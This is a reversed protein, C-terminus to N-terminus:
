PKMPTYSMSGIVNNLDLQLWTGTNGTDHTDDDSVVRLQSPLSLSPLRADSYADDGQKKALASIPQSPLSDRSYDQRGGALINDRCLIIRREERVKGRIYDSIQMPTWRRNDHFNSFSLLPNTHLVPSVPVEKVLRVVTVQGRLDHKDIRALFDGPKALGFLPGTEQISEVICWMSFPEGMANDKDPAFVTLGLKGSPAKIEIVEYKDSDQLSLPLVSAAADPQEKSSSSRLWDLISSSGCTAGKTALGATSDETAESLEDGEAIMDGCNTVFPARSSVINQMVQTDDDPSVTSTECDGEQITTLADCDKDDDGLSRNRMAFLNGGKPRAKKTRFNRLSQSKGAAASTSIADSSGSSLDSERAARTKPKSAFGKPMSIPFSSHSSSRGMPFRVRDSISSSASAVTTADAGMAASTLNSNSLVSEDEIDGKMSRRRQVFFAVLVGVCALATVIGIISSLSSKEPDTAKGSESAEATADLESQGKDNFPAAKEANAWNITDLVNNRCIEDDTCASSRQELKLTTVFEGGSTKLTDYIQSELISPDLIVGEATGGYSIYTTGQEQQTQLFRKTTNYPVSRLGRRTPTDSVFDIGGTAYIDFVVNEIKSSLFDAMAKATASVATRSTQLGDKLTPAYAIRFTKLTVSSSAEVEILVYDADSEGLTVQENSDSFENELDKVASSFGSETQEDIQESASEGTGASVEVTVQGDGINAFLPESAAAIDYNESPSSYYPQQYLANIQNRDQSQLQAGAQEPQDVVFREDSLALAAHPDTLPVVPTDAQSPSFSPYKSPAKSPQSSPASSPQESPSQSSSQRPLFLWFFQNRESNSFTRTEYGFDEEMQRGRRTRERLKVRDSLVKNRHATGIRLHESNSTHARIFSHTSPHANCLADQLAASSIYIACWYKYWLSPPMLVPKVTRM